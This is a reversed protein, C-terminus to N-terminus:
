EIPRQRFANSLTDLDAPVKRLAQMFLDSAESFRNNSYAEHAATLDGLDVIHATVYKQPLSNRAEDFTRAAAGALGNSQYQRANNVLRVFSIELEYESGQQRLKELHHVTEVSQKPCKELVPLVIRLEEPASIRMQELAAEKREDAACKLWPLVDTLLKISTKERELKSSDQQMRLQDLFNKQQIGFSHISWILAVIGLLLTGGSGALAKIYELWLPPESRNKKDPDGM